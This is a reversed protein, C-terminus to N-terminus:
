RGHREHDPFDRKLHKYADLAKKRLNPRSGNKLAKHLLDCVWIVRAVQWQLREIQKRSNDAKRTM